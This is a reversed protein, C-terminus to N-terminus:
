SIISVCTFFFYAICFFNYNLKSAAVVRLGFLSLSLSLSSRIVSYSYGQRVSARYTERSERRRVYSFVSFMGCTPYGRNLYAHHM